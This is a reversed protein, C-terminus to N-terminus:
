NWSGVFASIVGVSPDNSVLGFIATESRVLYVFDAEPIICIAIFPEITPFSDIRLVRYPSFGPRGSAPDCDGCDGRGAEAM